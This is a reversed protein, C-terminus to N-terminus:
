IQLNETSFGSNDQTTRSDGTNPQCRLINININLVATVKTPM